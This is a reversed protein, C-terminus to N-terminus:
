PEGRGVRTVVVDSEPSTATIAIASGLAHVAVGPYVNASGATTWFTTNGADDLEAVFISLPGGNAWARPNTGTDTLGAVVVRGSSALSLATAEDYGNGGLYRTFILAGSGDFRSVFADNWLTTGFFLREPSIGFSNATIGPAIPTWTSGWDTSEYVGGESSM